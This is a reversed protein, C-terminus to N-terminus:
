LQEPWRAVQITKIEALTAPSMAKVQVMRKCRAQLRLPQLRWMGLRETRSERGRYCAKRLMRFQVAQKAPPPCPRNCNMVGFCQGAVRTSGSLVKTPRDDLHGGPERELGVRKVQPLSAVALRCSRMTAFHATSTLWPLDKSESPRIATASEQESDKAELNPSNLLVPAAHSEPAEPVAHSSPPCYTLLQRM